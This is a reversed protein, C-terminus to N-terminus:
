KNKQLTALDRQISTALPSQGWRTAETYARQLIETAKVTAGARAHTAGLAYLYGPTQDDAPEISKEFAAIAEPYRRQNALIRGLHYHSLRLGPKAAIARRYYTAAQDWAGTTEVVAGLSDLAEAHSPDASVAAAFAKRADELRGAQASLVGFNYHAEANRPELAIAEDYAEEAKQPQGLRAYLSILNVWAQALKPDAALAREQLAAAQDLQGQRELSQAARLLGTTSADLAQVAAMAPDELPPALLKDREYNELAADARARQGLQRYAAALAFRAAGYRPFLEIARELPPLAATGSLCRGLGYHAAALNPNAAIVAEYERRAQDIQGASYLADALRLRVPISDRLKLSARLPPIADAYRGDASLAAGWYDAYDAQQPALIAARQYARAAAANQQHAHLTMALRAVTAADNPKQQAASLATQIAQRVAPQASSLDVSPLDPLPRQLCASSAFLLCLMLRHKM